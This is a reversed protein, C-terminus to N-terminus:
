YSFASLLALLVLAITVRAVDAALERRANGRAPEMRGFNPATARPQWDRFPM